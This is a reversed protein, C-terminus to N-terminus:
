CLYTDLCTKSTQTVSTPVDNLSKYNDDIFNHFFDQCAVVSNHVLLNVNFDGSIICKKGGVPAKIM